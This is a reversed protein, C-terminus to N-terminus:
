GGRPMQATKAACGSYTVGALAVEAAMPYRLDSMGDSCPSVYLTVKLTAGEPTKATWAATGPRIAAGPAQAVLDPQDPRSLTLQTGRIKVAWFPETGRADIDGSFDSVATKPAAKSAPAQVPAEQQCAALLLLSLALTKRV